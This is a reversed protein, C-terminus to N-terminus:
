DDVRVKGDVKVTVNVLPGSINGFCFGVRLIIISPSTLINAVGINNVEHTVAVVLVFPLLGGNEVNNFVVRPAAGDEHAVDAKTDVASDALFNTLILTASVITPRIAVIFPDRDEARTKMRVKGADVHSDDLIVVEILVEIVQHCWLSAMIADIGDWTDGGADRGLENVEHVLKAV